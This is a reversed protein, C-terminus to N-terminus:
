RRTFLTYGHCSIDGVFVGRFGRELPSKSFRQQRFANRASVSGM